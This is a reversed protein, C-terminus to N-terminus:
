YRDNKGAKREDKEFVEYSDSLRKFISIIYIYNFGQPSLYEASHVCERNRRPIVFDAFVERFEIFSTQLNLPNKKQVIM